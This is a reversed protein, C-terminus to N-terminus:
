ISVFLAGSNVHLWSIQDQLDALCIWYLARHGSGSKNTPLLSIIVQSGRGGLGYKFHFLLATANKDCDRCMRKHELPLNCFAPGFASRVQDWPFDELHSDQSRRNLLLRLSSSGSTGHAQSVRQSGQAETNEETSHAPKMYGRINISENFSEFVCFLLFFLAPTM